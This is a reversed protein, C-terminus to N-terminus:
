IDTKSYKELCGKSCFFINPIDPHPVAKDQNIILMKCVPDVHLFKETEVILEYLENEESLNKFNHKGKSQFKILGKGPLANIFQDSCWFTGPCAISAIRSTLNLATGFYSNNRKLLKGFHLGGHLQLFNDEEHTTQILMLATSLLHDPSSSIIMVEDGTREHLQSDGVLCDKVIEIYKDILDAASSPGHAETLATYGALDAMLIAVEKEM